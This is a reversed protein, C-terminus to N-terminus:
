HFHGVFFLYWAILSQKGQFFKFNHLCHTPSASLIAFCGAALCTHICFVQLYDWDMALPSNSKWKSSFRVCLRHGWRDGDWRLDPQCTNPTIDVSVCIVVQLWCSCNWERYQFSWAPQSMREATKEVSHLVSFSEAHQEGPKRWQFCTSVVWEHFFQAHLSFGPQGLQAVSLLQLWYQPSGSLILSSAQWVMLKWWILIQSCFFVSWKQPFADM